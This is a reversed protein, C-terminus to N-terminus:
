FNGQVQLYLGRQDKGATNAEAAIDGFQAYAAVLSLNKSPFYAIFLDSWNEEKLGSINDPKTRYEVGVVTASNLFVGASGEFQANYGSNSSSEFGLIGLQNAKTARLTGNLLLNHGSVPLVKTAALYIDTGSDKAGHANLFADAADTKKYQVGIALAPKGKGMDLLKYKAGLVNVKIHGLGVAATDFDMQGYSIEFRNAFAAHIAIGALNYAGTNVWTISVSPKGDSLLAWPVIGGGAAGEVETVAAAAPQFVILSAAGILASAAIITHHHKMIGGTYELQLITM